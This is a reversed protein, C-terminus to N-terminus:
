PQRRRRASGVSVLRLRPLEPCHDQQWDLVVRRLSTVTYELRQRTQTSMAAMQVALRVMEHDGADADVRAAHEPGFLASIRRAEWLLRDWWALEDLLDATSAPPLPGPPVGGDREGLRRELEAIRIDREALQQEYLAGLRDWQRRGPRDILTVVQAVQLKAPTLWAALHWLAAMRM